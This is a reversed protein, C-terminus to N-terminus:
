KEDVKKIKKHRWDRSFMNFQIRRHTRITALVPMRRSQKLKKGLRRKEYSTKKTM